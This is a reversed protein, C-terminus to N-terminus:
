KNLKEEDVPLAGIAAGVTGAAIMYGGITIIVAPITVPAAALGVIATGVAILAGSVWQIKKFIKPSPAKLREIIHMENAKKDNREYTM